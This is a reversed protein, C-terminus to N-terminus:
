KEEVGEVKIDKDELEILGDIEKHRLDKDGDLWVWEARRVGYTEEVTRYAEYVTLPRGYPWGNKDSGGVFPDLRNLVRNKVEDKVDCAKVHPLCSIGIDINVPTYAPEKVEIVTGIIRRPMLYNKVDSILDKYKDRRDSVIIIEVKGEDPNDFVLARKVKVLKDHTSEIALRRFDEETIARYPSKLFNLAAAKMELTSKQSGNEIEKLFELLKRHAADLNSEENLLTDIERRSAGAVLRLFNIYSEESLRNIRYLTTEVIWSLLELITIGPDSYNHNTWKDTYKPISTVMEEFIDEFTITHLNPLQIPM